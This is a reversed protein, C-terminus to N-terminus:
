GGRAFRERLQALDERTDLDDLIAPDSCNWELLPTAQERLARLDKRRDLDALLRRGIVVPHGHRGAPGLRPALWGREPAGAELWARALGVVTDAAVLPVDVPAVLVDCGPAKTLAAALSTTRGSAWDENHVWECPAHIRACIESAHAGVVVIPRPDVGNMSKLLRALAPEGGLEALAKPEGLRRSAGAALVIARLM